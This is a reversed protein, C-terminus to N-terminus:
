KFWYTQINDYNDNLINMSLRETKDSKKCGKPRYCALGRQGHFKDALFMLIFNNM